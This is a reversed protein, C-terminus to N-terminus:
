IEEFTMATSVYNGRRDVPLTLDICQVLKDGFVFQGDAVLAILKNFDAKPIATWRLEWIQKTEKPISFCEIGSEHNGSWRRGITRSELEINDSGLDPEPLTFPAVSGDLTTILM